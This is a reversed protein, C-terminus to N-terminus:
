VTDALAYFEQNERRIRDKLVRMVSQTQTIFGSPDSKISSPTPWKRTYATFADAIPGMEQAFKTAMRKLSENSSRALEPYLHGDEAALHVSLKGALSSLLSRAKGPDATLTAVTLERELEAALAALDAHQQRYRQTRSM